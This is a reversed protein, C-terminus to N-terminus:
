INASSRASRDIRGAHTHGVPVIGWLQAMPRFFDQSQPHHIRSPDSAPVASISIRVIQWHFYPALSHSPAIDSM